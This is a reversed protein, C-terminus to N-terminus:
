VRYCSHSHTVVLGISCGNQASMLLTWNSLIVTNKTSDTVMEYKM